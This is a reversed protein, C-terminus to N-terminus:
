GIWTEYNKCKGDMARKRAFTLANKYTMPEAPYKKDKVVNYCIVQVKRNKNEGFYWDYEYNYIDDSVYIKRGLQRM